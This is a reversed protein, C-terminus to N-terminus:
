IRKKGEKDYGLQWLIARLKSVQARLRNLEENLEDMSMNEEEEEEDAAVAAEQQSEVIGEQIEHEAGSVEESTEQPQEMNNEKEPGLDEM